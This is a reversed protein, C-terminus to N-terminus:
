EWESSACRTECTHTGCVRHPGSGTAAAGPGPGDCSRPSTSSASGSRHQDPLRRRRGREMSRAWRTPSRTPRASWSSRTRRGAQTSAGAPATDQRQGVARVQRAFGARRQDDLQPLPEDLDFKSFDIDTVSSISALAQEIFAPDEAEAGEQASRKRRPRASCRASWSCCRSTTRIAARAGRGPRARRRPLGEHGEVGNAIAIISDAYKAAFQRGKPSGGAQVFAPAGAALPVTNLPGRSKFYKGEFHIQTSRTHLRRLHRDRPRAGRRGAGLSDWLQCCWTSTSTPSTTACTTSPSSTWASTRRRVTRAPPSSTGASDARPSTTSRRASAPSCSRRTSRPRCPRSWAWRRHDGRGHGRGAAGPRAQAGHHRAEPVGRVNGGYAESVM